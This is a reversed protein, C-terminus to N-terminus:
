TTPVAVDDVARDASAQVGGLSTEAHAKSFDPLAPLDAADPAFTRYTVTYTLLLHGVPQNGEEGVGLQSSALISEGAAGGFYPDADMAKEIELAIADLADDVNTAAKVVAEIALQLTRTLERPATSKSAPDVSEELTYVAIAPLELQRFPLLRTEYVRAGAATKGLLQAKVAERIIQRQHAM